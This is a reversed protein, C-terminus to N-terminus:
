MVGVRNKTKEARKGWEVPFIDTLDLGVVIAFITVSKLFHAAVDAYCPDGIYAITGARGASHSTISFITTHARAYDVVIGRSKPSVGVEGCLKTISLPGKQLITIMLAIRFAEIVSGKKMKEGGEPYM